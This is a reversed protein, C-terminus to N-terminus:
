VWRYLSWATEKQIENLKGEAKGFGLIEELLTHPKKQLETGILVWILVFSHKDMNMIQYLFNVHICKIEDM